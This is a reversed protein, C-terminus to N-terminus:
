LVGTEIILASFPTRFRIRSLTPRNMRTGTRLVGGAFPLLARLAAFGVPPPDRYM